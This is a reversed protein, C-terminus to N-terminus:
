SPWRGARLSDVVEAHGAVAAVLTDYRKNWGDNPTEADRTYITTDFLYSASNGPMHHVIVGMWQTSVLLRDGDITVFDRAVERYQRDCRKTHWSQPDLPQGERDFYTLPM